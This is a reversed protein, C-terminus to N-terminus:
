SVARDICHAMVACDINKIKVPVGGADPHLAAQIRIRRQAGVICDVPGAPPLAYFDIAYHISLMM